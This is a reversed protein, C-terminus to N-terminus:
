VILVPEASIEILASIPRALITLPEPSMVRPLAVSRSQLAPEPLIETARISPLPLRTRVPEPSTDNPSTFPGIVAFDPDPETMTFDSRPAVNCAFEPDPSMETAAVLPETSRRDAEPEKVTPIASLRGAQSSRLETDPSMRIPSSGVAWGSGPSDYRVSRARVAEPSMEM